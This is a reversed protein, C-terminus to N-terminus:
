KAMCAMLNKQFLSIDQNTITLDDVPFHRSMEISTAIDLCNHLKIRQSSPLYFAIYTLLIVCVSLLVLNIKEKM